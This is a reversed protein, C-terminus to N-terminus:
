DRCIADQKPRGASCDEIMDASLVIGDCALNRTLHSAVELFARNEKKM